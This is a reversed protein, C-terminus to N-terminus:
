GRNLVLLVISVAIFLPIFIKLYDPLFSIVNSVYVVARGISIFFQVFMMLFDGFFNFIQGIMDFFNTM